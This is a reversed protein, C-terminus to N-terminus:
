QSAAYVGRSQSLIKIVGKKIYAEVGKGKVVSGPRKIVVKRNTVAYSKQPYITLASTTITTEPNTKDKPQHLKVQGWLHVEQNGNLSKGYNAKITWPIRTSTYLLFDPKEFDTSNDKAYHKMLPSFLHNQLLGQKNYKTYTVNVMYADMENKPQPQQEKLHSNGRIMLALSISVTLFFILSLFVTTRTM